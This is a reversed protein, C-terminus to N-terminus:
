QVATRAVHSYGTKIPRAGAAHKGQPMPPGRFTIVFFATRSARLCKARAQLWSPPFSGRLGGALHPPSDLM